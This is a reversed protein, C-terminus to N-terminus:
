YYLNKNCSYCAIIPFPLAIDRTTSGFNLPCSLKLEYFSEPIAVPSIIFYADSLFIYM